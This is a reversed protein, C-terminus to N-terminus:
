HYRPLAGLFFFHNDDDDGGEGDNNVIWRTQDESVLLSCVAWM